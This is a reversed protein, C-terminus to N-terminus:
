IIALLRPLDAVQGPQYQRQTMRGNGFVPLIVLRPKGSQGPRKGAPVGTRHAASIATKQDNQRNKPVPRFVM